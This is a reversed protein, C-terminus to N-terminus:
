DRKPLTNSGPSWKVEVRTGGGIQGQITLVAGLAEARERMIGLGLREPSVRTVDFGCGDDIVSLEVSSFESDDSTGQRQTDPCHLTITVQKARAHKIVNNLAEQAIRYLGVHVDPPLHCQGDSTVTISLGSRGRAAEALQRILDALGIEMLATPRLELLLARMEALAGRSLCRLEDLLEQGETQDSAWVIPLADAILSASFLTQTVADHLDRALRNREEVVALEQTQEYLQATDIALAARQALAVFLRQEDESFSRPENYDATFVGFVEGNMRIPVQLSARVGERTFPYHVEAERPGTSTDGIAVPKESITVLAITSNGPVAVFQALANPQFGRAVRVVLSKRESDWTWLSSRDAHLIDVAIDVLARLVDDLRMHSLLEADARYLAELEQMRKEIQAFLRANEVAVGIQGGISALLEAEQPDFDRYERSVTFLLGLVKGRSILPCVALSHFGARTLTSWKLHRDASLDHAAVPRGTEIIQGILRTDLRLHDIASVTRADLGRSCAISMEAEDERALYVGGAATGVVSLTRDLAGSLVDDLDLSQSVVAAITNLAALERTRDAVRQELLAYSEQLQDSMRNFQGALDELEDGTAAVIMRGFNGEAVEQAAGILETVPQTIKRTAAAVVIAPILVGLGLLVLLFQQYGRSTRTLADWDSEMVMGWSTGPVPSFSAIFDRSQSERIHLAGAEGKLLREVAPNTTYDSGIQDIDYHFIVHGRGDVLYARDTEEARLESIDRYFPSDPAEDLRFLGAIVGVLDGREDRIPVMVAIVDAGDPGDPIVDSFAASPDDNMRRVCPRGAWSMGMLKSREPEAAVVTFQSDLVLVGGDFVALRGRVRRLANRRAAPDREILYDAGALDALLGTYETLLGAYETLGSAFESSSLRTLRQDREIILEEVVRQYAVFTVWAVALLIITTPVFSWAIIKTRLSRWRIRPVM